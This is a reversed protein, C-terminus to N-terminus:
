RYGDSVNGVSYAGDGCTKCTWHPTRDRHLVNSCMMCLALDPDNETTCASCVVQGGSTIRSSTGARASGLERGSTSASELVSHVSRAPTGSPKSVYDAISPQNGNAQKGNSTKTPAKKAASTSKAPKDDSSESETERAKGKKKGKPVEDSSGEKEAEAKEAAKRAAYALAARSPGDDSSESLSGSDSGRSKKATTKGKAVKKAPPKAAKSSKASSREDESSETETSSAKKRKVKSGTSTSVGNSQGGSTSCALKMVDQLEGWDEDDGDEVKVARNGAVEVTGEEEETTYEDEDNSSEEKKEKSSSSSSAQKQMAEMRKVAAEARLDRGRQSQAVRPKFATGAKGKGKELASRAKEDIGLSDGESKGFKREKRRQQREAYTLKRKQGASAKQAARYVGGCLNEPLESDALIRPITYDSSLSQGRSWFGDGSYDKATLVALCANTEAYTFRVLASCVM